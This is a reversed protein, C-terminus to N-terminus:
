PDVHLTTTIEVPPEGPLDTVIKFSRKLDGRLTGKSPDYEVTLQHMRVPQDNAGTVSFGEGAGEISVIQFPKNARVLVKGRPKTGAKASGLSLLSPTATIDGIVQATVRVPIRPTAPDSTSIVIETDIIGASVDPKVGVTLSYGVGSESRATEVLKATLVRSSSAMRVLKWDISGLHEITLTQQTPKGKIVVGFHIAGPNLVTDSQIESSVNFRVEAERGSSSVVTVFLTTAKHGVFNRTDMQATVTARGGPPVVSMNAQGSTCGCSAHVDIISVAEALRNNLVFPHRVIAGRPVAGFDHGHEDFLADAWRAAFASSGFGALVVLASLFSVIRDYRVSDERM